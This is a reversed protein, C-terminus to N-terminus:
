GVYLSPFAQNNVSLVGVQLSFPLRRRSQRSEKPKRPALFAEGSPRVAASGFFHKPIGDLGRFAMGPPGRKTM